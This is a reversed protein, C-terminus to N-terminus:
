AASEAAHPDHNAVWQMEGAFGARLRGFDFGERVFQGDEGTQRQMEPIFPQGGALRVLDEVLCALAACLMLRKYVLYRCHQDQLREQVSM